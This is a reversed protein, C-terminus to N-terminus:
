PVCVELAPDCIDAGGPLQKSVTHFIGTNQDGIKNGLASIASIGVISVLAVLLAYEVLSAGADKRKMFNKSTNKKEM